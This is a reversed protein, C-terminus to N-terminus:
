LGHPPLDYLRGSEEPLPAQMYVTLLCGRFLSRTKGMVDIDPRREKGVLIWRVAGDHRDRAFPDRSDKDGGEKACCQNLVDNLNRWVFDGGSLKSLWVPHLVNTVFERTKNFSVARLAEAEQIIAQETWTDRQRSESLDFTTTVSGAPNHFGQIIFWSDLFTSVNALAAPPLINQPTPWWAALDADGAGVTCDMDMPEKAEQHQGHGTTQAMLPHLHPLISAERTLVHNLLIDHFLSGCYSLVEDETNLPGHRPSIRNMSQRLPRFTNLRPSRAYRKQNKLMHDRIDKELNTWSGSLLAERTFWDDITELAEKLTQLRIHALLHFAYAVILPCPKTISGLQIHVVSTLGHVEYLFTATKEPQILDATVREKRACRLRFELYAAVLHHLVLVARIMAAFNSFIRAWIPCNRLV